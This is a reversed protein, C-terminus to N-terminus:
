QTWFKRPTKPLFMKCKTNEKILTDIDEIIDAIDSIREEMQQTRNTM